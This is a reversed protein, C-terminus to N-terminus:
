ESRRVLSSGIIFLVSVLGAGVSLEFAGAYRAGFLFFIVAIAVSGIGIATVAWILRKALLVALAAAVFAICLSLLMVTPASM